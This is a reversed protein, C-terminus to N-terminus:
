AAEQQEPSLADICNVTADILANDADILAAHDAAAILRDQDGEKIGYAVARLQNAFDIVGCAEVKDALATFQAATALAIRRTIWDSASVPAVEIEEVLSLPEAVAAEEVAVATVEPVPQLAAREAAIADREAQLEAKLAALEAKEAALEAAAEAKAADLRAREEEQRIEEIERAEAIDHLTNLAGITAAVVAAAEEAFEAFEPGPVFNALDELESEIVVLREGALALPIQRINEIMSTIADVRAKEAAERAAKEAEIRQEEAKIQADIPEEIAKIAATIAKAEADIAQTRRLAPEKIEKRVAVLGTRLKVLKSRVDKADKMGDKTTVPFVVDAYRERLEALVAETTNYETIQRTTESM